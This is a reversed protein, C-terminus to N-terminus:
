EMRQLLVRPVRRSRSRCRSIAGLGVDPLITRMTGTPAVVRVLQDLFAHERRVDAGGSEQLLVLMRREVADVLPRGGLLERREAVKEPAARERKGAAVVRRRGVIRMQQEPDLVPRVVRQQLRHQQTRQLLRAITGVVDAM